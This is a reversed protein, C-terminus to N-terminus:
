TRRWILRAALYGLALTGVMYLVVFGTDHAGGPLEEFVTVGKHWAPLGREPAPPHPEVRALYMFGNAKFVGQSGYPEQLFGKALTELGPPSHVLTGFGSPPGKPLVSESISTDPALMKITGLSM